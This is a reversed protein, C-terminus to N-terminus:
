KGRAITAADIRFRFTGAAKCNAGPLDLDLYKAMPAPVEFVLLDGIAKGPAVTDLVTRDKVNNGFGFKVRKCEAGGDDTLKAVTKAVNLDPVWTSYEFARKDHLNEVRVLVMLRPEDSYSTSGDGNKLAVKGITVKKVSVRVSGVVSPQDGPVRATSQAPPETKPPGAKPEPAPAPATAPAAPTTPPAPHDCGALLILAVLPCCPIPM